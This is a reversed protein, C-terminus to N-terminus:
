WPTSYTYVVRFQSDKVPVVSFVLNQAVLSWGSLQLVWPGEVKLVPSTNLYVLIPFNASPPFSLPFSTQAGNTYLWDIQYNNTPESVGFDNLRKRVYLEDAYSLTSM